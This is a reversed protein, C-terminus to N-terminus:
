ERWDFANAEQAWTLPVATLALASQSIDSVWRATFSEYTGSSIRNALALAYTQPSGAYLANINKTIMGIDWTTHLNTSAGSCETANQNGGDGLAEAHLPQGIDGIFHTIFFLAQQKQTADTAAPGLSENFTSGLIPQIISLTTSDLFQMALYGTTQHGLHGWASVSRPAMLAVALTFPFTAKM